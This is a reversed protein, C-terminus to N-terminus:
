LEGFEYSAASEEDCWCRNTSRLIHEMGKMNPDAIVPDAVFEEDVVPVFSVSYQDTSVPPTFREFLDELQIVVHDKQYQSLMFGVVRGEDQVGGYLTGGSSNVMGCLYKSWHQRTQSYVEAGEQLTRTRNEISITRHAKFEHTLDEEMNAVVKGRTYTRSRVSASPAM